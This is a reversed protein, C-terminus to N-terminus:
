IMYENKNVSKTVFRIMQKILIDMLVHAYEMKVILKKKEFHPLKIQVHHVLFSLTLVHKALITVNKAFKYLKIELIIAAIANFAIM